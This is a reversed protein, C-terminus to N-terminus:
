AAVGGFFLAAGLLASVMAYLPLQEKFRMWVMARRLTGTPLFMVALGSFFAIWGILSVLAELWGGWRNHGVVIALGVALRLTGIMSEFVPDNTIRDVLALAAERRYMLWAAAFLSYAGMLRALYLTSPSM